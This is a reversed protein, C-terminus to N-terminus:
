SRGAPALQLFVHRAVRYHLYVIVKSDKASLILKKSQDVKIKEIMRPAITLLVLKQVMPATDSM